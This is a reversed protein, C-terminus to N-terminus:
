LLDKQPIGPTIFCFCQCLTLILASYNAPSFLLSMSSAKEQCLCTHHTKKWLVTVAEVQGQEAPFQFCKVYQPTRIYVFLQSLPPFFVINVGSSNTIQKQADPCTLMSIGHGSVLLM